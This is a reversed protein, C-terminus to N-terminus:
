PAIRASGLVRRALEIGDPSPYRQWTTRSVSLRYRKTGKSLMLVYIRAPWGDIGAKPLQHHWTRAADAGLRKCAAAPVDRQGRLTLITKVDFAQDVFYELPDEDEPADEVTLTVQEAGLPSTWTLGTRTWGKPAGFRLGEVTVPEVTPPEPLFLLGKHAGGEPREWTPKAVGEKILAIWPREADRTERLWLPLPDHELLAIIRAVKGDEFTFLMGHQPYYHGKRVSLDFAHRASMDPHKMNPNRWVTKTVGRSDLKDKLRQPEKGYAAEVKAVADGIRIGRSTAPAGKGELILAEVNYLFNCREYDPRPMVSLTWDGKEYFHWFSYLGPEQRGWGLLPTVLPLPMGLELQGVFGRGDTLTKGAFVKAYRDTPTRDEDAAVSSLGMLAIALAIAGMWGLMGRARTM